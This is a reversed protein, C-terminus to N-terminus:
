RRNLLLDFTRAAQTGGEWPQSYEMSITADGMVHVTFTWIEIGDAGEIENTTPPIYEKSMFEVRLQGNVDTLKWEFGSTPNSCLTVQLFDIWMDAEAEECIVGEGNIYRECSADVYVYRSHSFMWLFVLLIVVAICGFIILKRGM